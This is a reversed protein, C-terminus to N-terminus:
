LGAVSHSAQWGSSSIYDGVRGDSEREVWCDCSESEAAEEEAEEIRSIAWGHISPLFNM